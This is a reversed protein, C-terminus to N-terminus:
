GPPAVSQHSKEERLGSGLLDNIQRKIVARQDNKLYVERALQIFQADFRQERECRRKGEEIHWLLQNLDRLADVLADLGPPFRSRAGIAEHIAQCERQLNEQQAPTRLHLLKIDLITLKDFVEGWAVPIHPVAPWLQTM